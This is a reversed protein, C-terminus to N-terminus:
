IDINTVKRGIFYNIVLMIIALFLLITGLTTEYMPQMYGPNLIMLIIVLGVPMFTLIGAEMRKQATALKIEQQILIKDSISEATNTIVDALNGGKSRTMIIADIFHSIDELDHDNKFDTLVDDIPKGLQIDSNMSKLADLMPKEKQLRLERDLDTECRQLATQLSSGAKLSSALSMIAERFQLLMKEELRKKDRALKIRPYLLGLFSMLLAPLISRFLFIGFIFIALCVLLTQTYNLTVESFLNRLRKNSSKEKDKIRHLTKHIEKKRPIGGHLILQILEVIARLIIFIICLILIYTLLVNVM